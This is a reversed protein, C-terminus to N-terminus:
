KQILQSKLTGKGMDLAERAYLELEQYKLELKQEREVLDGVVTQLEQTRKCTPGVAAEILDRIEIQERDKQIRDVGEVVGFTTMKEVLKFKYEIRAQDARRM